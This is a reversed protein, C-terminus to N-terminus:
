ELLLQITTEATSKDIDLRMECHEAIESMPTPDDACSCGPIIGSYFIGLKVHIHGADDSIGLIMVSRKDGSVYSSQALGQQLPLQAADMQEIEHKLIAEFAPTEWANLVRTLRMM